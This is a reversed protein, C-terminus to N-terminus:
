KMLFCVNQDMKKLLSMRRQTSFHREQHSLEESLRSSHERRQETVWSLFCFGSRLCCHFLLCFSCSVTTNAPLLCSRDATRRTALLLSAADKWWPSFHIKIQARCITEARCPLFILPSSSPFATLKHKLTNTPTGNFVVVLEQQITGSSPSPPIFSSSHLRQLSSRTHWTKIDTETQIFM